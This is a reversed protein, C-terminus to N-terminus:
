TEKPIILLTGPKVHVTGNANNNAAAIRWWDMPSGYVNNAIIDLRDQDSAVITTDVFSDGVVVKPISPKYVVRGDPLTTTELTKVYREDPTPITAM